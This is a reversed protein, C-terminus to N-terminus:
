SAAPRRGPRGVSMLPERDLPIVRDGRPRSPEHVLRGITRVARRVTESPHECPQPDVQLERGIFFSLGDSVLSGDARREVGVLALAPFAGNARWSEVLRTFYGADMWSGAPRWFVARAPSHRVILAATEAIIQVLPVLDERAPSPGTLELSVAEFPFSERNDVTGYFHRAPPPPCPRGPALGRMEWTLGGAILDLRYDDPASQRGLSALDADTLISEIDAAGPRAGKAYLLAFSPGDGASDRIM